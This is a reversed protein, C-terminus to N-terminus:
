KMSRATCNETGNVRYTGTDKFRGPHIHLRVQKEALYDAYEDLLIANTDVSYISTRRINLKELYEIVQGILLMNLLPEGGQFSVCTVPKYSGYPNSEWLQVLYDIM